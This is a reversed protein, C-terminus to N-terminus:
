EAAERIAHVTRAAIEPWGVTIRERAAESMRRLREPSAACVNEIADALGEVSGDYSVAAEGGLRALGARAPVVVPRGHTLALSMSGTTTVRRFPLMVIDADDMLEAAEADPIHRLDLRVRPGAAMAARELERRLAEDPCRGAVLLSFDHAAPVRAAAAVLDEVGKHHAVRGFFLLRRPGPSSGPVRPSAPTALALPGHPIVVSRAPRIGLVALEALAEESHAIVLRGAGALARRAALDDHLLTEHPLANHATWVITMGAARVTALWLTFWWQSVRRLVPFRGGHPLAFGFLWHVHVVRWGTAARALTELPLLLLNLTRSGTLDGLYAVRVGLRRAERYLEEQYPNADRPIALLGSM